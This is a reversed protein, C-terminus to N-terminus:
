KDFFLNALLQPSQVCFEFCSRTGIWSERVVSSQIAPFCMSEQAWWIREGQNPSQFVCHEPDTTCTVCQLCVAPMCVQLQLQLQPQAALQTGVKPHYASLSSFQDEALLLIVLFLLFFSPKLWLFFIALNGIRSLLRQKGTKAGAEALGLQTGAM